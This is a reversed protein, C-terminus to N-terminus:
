FDVTTSQDSLIARLLSSKAEVQVVNTFGGFGAAAKQRQMKEEKVTACRGGRCVLRMTTAEM